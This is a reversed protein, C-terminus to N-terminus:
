AGVEALDDLYENFVESREDIHLLEYAHAPSRAKYLQKRINSDHGIARAFAALVALHHDHETEPTVLLVACHIRHHDPADAAVPDIGEPFIAMVGAVSEGEPVHAHPIALGEGLASSSEEESRLVQELLKEKPHGGPHLKAYHTVLLELAEEMTEAKQGCLIHEDLLFDLVRRRDKDIDGSKALATRTLIPGVLENLLVVALVVALFTDRQARLEPTAAFAPSDTVLLMLGVALGAQPLMALGLYRRLRQTARAVTMAISGASVKGVSRGLFTIVAAVGAVALYEFQLELGAVTFFVAYIAIEFNAFVSPGLEDKDPTVNELFVGLFLCALLRSFEFHDALGITLLIAALTAATLKDQTVVQRTALVLLGGVACAVALSLGLQKLPAIALSVGLAHHTAGAEAVMRAVEFALICLLNNVGVAAVLIKVFVGKSRTEKVIALVTAPATSIAIVGLLQAMYWPTDTFLLLGSVVLAPTILVEMLAMWTLRAKANRLRRFSLHSGIDVAMLGLAFEIMPELQIAAGHGVVGLVEPGIVIGAIIQGTVSPLRFRKATM